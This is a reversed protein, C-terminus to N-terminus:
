ICTCKRTGIETIKCVKDYRVNCFLLIKFPMIIIRRQCILHRVIQNLSPTVAAPWKMGNFFAILPSIECDREFFLTASMISNNVVTDFVQFQVLLVM